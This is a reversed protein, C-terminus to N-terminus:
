YGTHDRHLILIAWARRHACAQTQAPLLCPSQALIRTRPGNMGIHACTHVYTRERACTHAHIHTRAHRHRPKHFLALHRRTCARTHGQTQVSHTHTHTHTRTHTHAHLKVPRDGLCTSLMVLLCKMKMVRSPRTLRAPSLLAFTHTVHGPMLVCMFGLLVM